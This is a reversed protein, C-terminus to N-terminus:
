LLVDIEADVRAIQSDATNAQCWFKRSGSREVFELTVVEYLRGRVGKLKVGLDVM